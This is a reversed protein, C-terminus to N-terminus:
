QDVSTRLYRVYTAYATVYINPIIIRIHFALM